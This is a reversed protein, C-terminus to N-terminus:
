VVFGAPDLTPFFAQAQRKDTLKAGYGAIFQEDMSKDIGGALGIYVKWQSSDHARAIAVVGVHMVPAQPTFWVCDIIKYQKEEAM